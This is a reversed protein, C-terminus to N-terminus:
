PRGREQWEAALDVCKAFDESNNTLGECREVISEGPSVFMWVTAAIVM